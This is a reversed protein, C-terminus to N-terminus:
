ALAEHTRGPLLGFSVGSTRSLTVFTAFVVPCLSLSSQDTRCV